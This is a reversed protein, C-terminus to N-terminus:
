EEKATGPRARTTREVLGQYGTTAEKILDELSTAEAHARWAPATATPPKTSPRRTAALLGYETALDILTLVQEHDDDATEEVWVSVPPLPSGATDAAQMQAVLTVLEPVTIMRHESM